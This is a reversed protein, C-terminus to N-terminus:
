GLFIIEHITFYIPDIKLFDDTLQLTITSKKSDLSAGQYNCFQVLELFHSRQSKTNM